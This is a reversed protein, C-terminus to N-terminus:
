TKPTERILRFFTITKDILITTAFLWFGAVYGAVIDSPYHVGLYIRSTGILFILIAAVISAVVSALRNKTFHYVFYALTSYFLFSNLAHGSPYSYSSEVVLPLIDPRPVKYLLKLGTTAGVGMLLLLTFIFTEKRHNRVTLLIIVVIAGFIILESGLFSIFLMLNTLFFSRFSFIISSVYSDILVTQQQTVASTMFLYVILSSISLLIGLVVELLIFSTVEERTFLNKFLRNLFRM